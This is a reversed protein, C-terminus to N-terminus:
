IFHTHLLILHRHIIATPTLPARTGVQGFGSSLVYNIFLTIIAYRMMGDEESACVGCNVVVRRKESASYVNFMHFLHM